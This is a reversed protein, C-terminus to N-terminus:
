HTRMSTLASANKVFFKQKEETNNLTKNLRGASNDEFNNM